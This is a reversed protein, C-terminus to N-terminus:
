KKVAKWECQKIRDFIRVKGTKTVYVELRARPTTIDIDVWGQKEHSMNRQIEAAGYKFGYKTEVYNIM